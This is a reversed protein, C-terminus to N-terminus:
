IRLQRPQFLLLRYLPCVSLLHSQLPTIFHHLRMYLLPPRHASRLRTSLAISIDCAAIIDISTLINCGSQWYIVM